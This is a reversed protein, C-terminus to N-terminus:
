SAESAEEAFPDQPTGPDHFSVPSEFCVSTASVALCSTQSMPITVAGENALWAMVALLRDRWDDNWWDKCQSRRARHLRDPNDWIHKGDDSFVVHPLLALVPIPEFLPRATIGFHWHRLRRQGDPARRSKHGVLKRWATRGDSRTFTVRDGDLLGSPFFSCQARNAMEHRGLGRQACLQELGLRYLEVTLRKIDLGEWRGPGPGPNLGAPLVEASGTIRLSGPGSDEVEEAPAFTAIRRGIAKAPWPLGEAATPLDGLGSVDHIYLPSPASTIPFWNSVHEEPVDEIEASLDKTDRWRPVRKPTAGDITQPVADDALKELLIRLGAAWDDQASIINLRALEINADRSPIDDIRIPIIFDHLGQARAVNAAVRLENLPGQKINSSKSLIFVVKVARGRIAAEADQWFDEGGKFDILDCFINYGQQYLKSALWRTFTNDEPNAHSLFITDRSM